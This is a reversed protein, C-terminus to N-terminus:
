ALVIHDKPKYLVGIIGLYLQCFIDSRLNLSYLRRLSHASQYVM